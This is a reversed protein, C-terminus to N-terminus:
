KLADASMWGENGQEDRVEVYSGERRLVTGKRAKLAAAIKPFPRTALLNVTPDAATDAGAGAGAGASTGVGASDGRAKSM